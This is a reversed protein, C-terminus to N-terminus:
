KGNYTLKVNGTNTELKTPPDQKKDTKGKNEEGSSESRKEWSGYEQEMAAVQVAYRDIDNSFYYRMADGIARLNNEKIDSTDTPMETNANATSSKSNGKYVKAYKYMEEVKPGMTSYIRDNGHMYLREIDRLDRPKGRDLEVTVKLGTPFDDLGLPGYHEITTKKVIMNGMSMIPHHPNGITVHWFGVPAPSLLSNVMQKHPRGLKNLMGGILMGGIDNMFNKIAQLPNDGLSASIKDKVTSVDKTFADVFDTFGGKCKFMELNAFINNQHAGGGRYGGGWFTGTTYTVNLINSLLDLMAQRGNIGNYSRLEYDFVLTFSHDFKIGKDDRMYTSKVADVPGYTKNRDQFGSFDRVNYRNSTGFMKAMIGDGQYVGGAMGAAYQQRYTKDFTASLQNLIGKNADGDTGAQEWQADQEKYPMSVSYKLINAMENGPAGLWTVMCGISDANKSKIVPDRRLTTGLTSIYDDVPIPFRRLTILYNNSIKGLHKCYMFDSYAYTSKGLTGARSAAVLEKVSCGSHARIDKRTKRSDMLPVNNSIRWESVNNRVDVNLNGDASGLVVAGYKNFISRVGPTGPGKTYELDQVKNGTSAKYTPEYLDNFTPFPNFNIYTNLDYATQSNLLYDRNYRVRSVVSGKTFQDRINRQYINNAM